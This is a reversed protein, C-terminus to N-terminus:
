STAPAARAATSGDRRPRLPEGDARRASRRRVGPALTTSVPELREVAEDDGGVMM